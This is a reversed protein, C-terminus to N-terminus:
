QRVFEERQTEDDIEAPDAVTEAIEGEDELGDLWAMAEDLDGLADDEAEPLDLMTEADVMLDDPVPEDVDLGLWDESSFPDWGLLPTYVTQHVMAGLYTEESMLM